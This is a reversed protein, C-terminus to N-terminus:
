TKFHFHQDLQPILTVCVAIRRHMQTSTNGGAMKLEGERLNGAAVPQRKGVRESRREPVPGLWALPPVRYTHVGNGENWEMLFRRLLIHMPLVPILFCM